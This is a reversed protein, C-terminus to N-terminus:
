ESVKEHKVFLSVVSLVAMFGIAINPGDALYTALAVCLFIMSFHKSTMKKLQITISVNNRVKLYL